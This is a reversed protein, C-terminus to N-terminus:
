KGTSALDSIQRATWHYVSVLYKQITVGTDVAHKQLNEISFSGTFVYEQLWTGIISTYYLLHSGLWSLCVQLALLMELVVSLVQEMYVPVKSNLSELLPPIEMNLWDRVGQTSAWLYVCLAFFKRWFIELYYNVFSSVKRCYMPANTQVWRYAKRWYVSTSRWAQQCVTLVGVDKLFMGTQSKQFSGHVHVDYYVGATVVSILVM